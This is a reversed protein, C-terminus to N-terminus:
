IPHRWSQVIFKGNPGPTNSPIFFSSEIKVLGCVKGPLRNRNRRITILGTRRTSNLKAPSCPIPAKSVAEASDRRDRHWAFGTVRSRSGSHNARQRLPM